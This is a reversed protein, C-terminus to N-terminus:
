VFARIRATSKWGEPEVYHHLAPTSVWVLLLFRHFEKRNVPGCLGPQRRRRFVHGRHPVEDFLHGFHSDEEVGLSAQWARLARPEPVRASLQGYGVTGEGLGLFHDAAERQKLDFRLFLRDFPGLPEDFEGAVAFALNALNVLGRGRCGAALLLLHGHQAIVPQPGEHRQPILENMTRRCLLHGIITSYM